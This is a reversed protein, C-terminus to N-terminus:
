AVSIEKQNQAQGRQLIKSFKNRGGTDLSENIEIKPQKV